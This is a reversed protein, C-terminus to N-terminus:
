ILPFEGGGQSYLIFSPDWDGASVVGSWQLIAVFASLVAAFLIVLLILSLYSTSRLNVGVVYAVWTALLYLVFLGASTLEVGLGEGFVAYVVVTLLLLLWVLPNVLLLRGEFIFLSILFGLFLFFLWENYFTTWPLFHIPAMYSFFLSAVSLILVLLRSMKALSPFKNAM